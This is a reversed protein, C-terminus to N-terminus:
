PQTALMKKKVAICDEHVSIFNGSSVFLLCRTGPAFHRGTVDQPERVSSVEAPNVYIIQQGNPGHLEVLTISAFIIAAGAVVHVLAAM